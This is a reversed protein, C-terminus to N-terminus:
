PTPRIRSVKVPSVQPRIHFVPGIPVSLTSTTSFRRWTTSPFTKSKLVADVRVQQVRRISQIQQMLYSIEIIIILWVGGQCHLTAIVAIRRTQVDVAYARILRYRISRKSRLINDKKELPLQTTADHM